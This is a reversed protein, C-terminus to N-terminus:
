WCSTDVKRLPQSNLWATAGGLSPLECEVPLQAAATTVSQATCGIMGHPAAANATATATFFRRRNYNIEGPM